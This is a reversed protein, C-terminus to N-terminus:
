QGSQIPWQKGDSTFLLLNGEASADQTLLGGNWRSMEGGGGVRMGIGAAMM